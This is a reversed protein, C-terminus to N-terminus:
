RLGARRAELGRRILEVDKEAFSLPKWSMASIDEHSWHAKMVGNESHRNIGELIHTIEHALVHALFCRVTPPKVSERIRDFFVKIHVGEYPQAFAFAGPHYNRPTDETLRIVIAGNAACSNRDARWEVQVGIDAFMKTAIEQAQRSEVSHQEWTMCVTVKSEEVTQSEGAWCSAGVLVAMTTVGLIRM